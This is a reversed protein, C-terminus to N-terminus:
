LETKFFDAIENNVTMSESYEPYLVNFAHLLPYFKGKEIYRFKHEINRKRLLSALNLSETNMKDEVSSILYVPPISSSNEIVQKLSSCIYFPNEKLAEGFLATQIDSLLPNNKVFSLETVPSSLAVAKFSLAYEELKYIKRLLPSQNVCLSVLCLNAAVSSACLFANNIDVSLSVANKEIYILADTVDEVLSRYDNNVAPPLNVSIVCFGKSALYACFNRDYGINEYIFGECHVNIIVPLKESNNEPRFVSLTHHTKGSDLYVINDRVAVGFVPECFDSHSYLNKLFLKDFFSDM